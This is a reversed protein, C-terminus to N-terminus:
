IVRWLVASFKDCEKYDDIEDYSIYNHVVASLTDAVKQPCNSWVSTTSIGINVKAQFGMEILKNALFYPPIDEQNSFHYVENWKDGRMRGLEENVHDWELQLSDIADLCDGKLQRHTKVQEGTAMERENDYISNGNIRLDIQDIVKGITDLMGQILNSKTRKTKMSFGSNLVTEQAKNMTDDKSISAGPASSVSPIRLGQSYGGTQRFQKNNLQIM